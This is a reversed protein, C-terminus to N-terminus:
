NNTRKKSSLTITPTSCNTRESLTIGDSEMESRRTLLDNKLNIIHYPNVRGLVGVIFPTNRGNSQFPWVTLAKDLYHTLLSSM